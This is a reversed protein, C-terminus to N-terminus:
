FVERLSFFCSPLYELIRGQNYAVHHCILVRHFIIFRVIDHTSMRPWRQKRTMSFQLKFKLFDVLFVLELRLIFLFFPEFALYVRM